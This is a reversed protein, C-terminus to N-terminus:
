LYLRNSQLSFILKTVRDPNSGSTEVTLPHRGLGSSSLATFRKKILHMLPGDPL